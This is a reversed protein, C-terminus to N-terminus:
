AHIEHDRLTKVEDHDVRLKLKQDGVLAVLDEPLEDSSKLVKEYADQAADEGFECSSLIAKRDKGTVAAKFDMWVRYAKGSTTTSDTPKGGRKLIESRLQANLTHSRQAMGNFLSKLDNDNTEKSAREYGEIRDNNIQVLENLLEITKEQPKM